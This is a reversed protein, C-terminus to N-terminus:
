FTGYSSSESHNSFSRNKRQPSNFNKPTVVPAFTLLYHICLIRRVSLHTYCMYVLQWHRERERDGKKRIQCITAYHVISARVAQWMKNYEHGGGYVSLSSLVSVLNGYCSGSKSSEEYSRIEGDLLFHVRERLAM